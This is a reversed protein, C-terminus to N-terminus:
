ALDVEAYDSAPIFYADQLEDTLEPDNRRSQVFLMNQPFIHQPLDPNFSGFEFTNESLIAAEPYQLLSVEILAPPSKGDTAYIRLTNSGAYEARVILETASLS